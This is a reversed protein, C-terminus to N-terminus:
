TMQSPYSTPSWVCSLIIVSLFIYQTTIFAFSKKCEKAYSDFFYFEFTEPYNLFCTMHLDLLPFPICSVGSGTGQLYRNWRFNSSWYLWNFGFFIWNRFLTAPRPFKRLINRYFFYPAWFSLIFVGVCLVFMSIQNDILISKSAIIVIFALNFVWQKLFRVVYFPVLSFRCFIQSFLHIYITNAGIRL